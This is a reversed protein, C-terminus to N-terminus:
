KLEVVRKLRRSGFQGAAAPPSPNEAIYRVMEPLSINNILDPAASM